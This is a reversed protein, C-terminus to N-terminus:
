VKSGDLPLVTVIGSGDPGLSWYTRSENVALLGNAPAIMGLRILNPVPEKFLGIRKQTM